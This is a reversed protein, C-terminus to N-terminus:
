CSYGYPDLGHAHQVSWSDGAVAYPLWGRWTHTNNAENRYAVPCPENIKVWGQDPAAVYTEAQPRCSYCGSCSYTFGAAIYRSLYALAAACGWV